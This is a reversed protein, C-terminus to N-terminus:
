ELPLYYALWGGTGVKFHAPYVQFDPADALARGCTLLRKGWIEAQAAAVQPHLEGDRLLQKFVLYERGPLVWVELGEPEHGPAVRAGALHEFSQAAANRNRFVGCTEGDGVRGAFSARSAFTKWLESIRIYSSPDYRGTLGAVRFTDVFEISEQLVPALTMAHRRKRIYSGSSKRYEVPSVGFARAFARTFAAHSEFRCELALEVVTRHPDGRLRQAAVDLRRGRVYAMVSEGQRRRFRRSFHFPSTACEAAIAAVTLDAFLHTEIYEIARAAEMAAAYEEDAGYAGHAERRELSM